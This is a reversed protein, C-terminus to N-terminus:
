HMRVNLYAAVVSVLASGIARTNILDLHVGDVPSARAVNGADFFIGKYDKAIQRYLAPIRESQAISRNGAPGTGERTNRFRPPAIIMLKPVRQETAFPYTRVIEALRRMGAAAGEATGCISPKLDNAGLMIIVLDLPAHSGLMTPLVRAGNRDAITNTDDFVTTRGVLGESIVRTDVLGAELVSPWCDQFAHRTGGSGPIAGWTLSDGFALVTKIDNNSM